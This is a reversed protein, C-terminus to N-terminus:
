ENFNLEWVVQDGLQIIKSNKPKISDKLYSIGIDGIAKVGDGIIIPAIVIIMKDVFRHKIFSTIVKGGGEVFLTNINMNKLTKLLFSINIEGKLDKESKITIVNENELIQKRNNIDDVYFIITKYTKATKVIECDFPIRLKSDLIIRVPSKSDPIRCTLYPNDKLITGIGVLIGDNDRRLQQTLSLTEDTSIWKSEGTITAINGDISQAYSITIKPIIHEM